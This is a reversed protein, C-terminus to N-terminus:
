HWNPCPFLNWKKERRACTALHLICKRVEHLLWNSWAAHSIANGKWQLIVKQKTKNHRIERKVM